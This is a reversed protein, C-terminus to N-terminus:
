TTPSATSRPSARVPPVVREADPRALQGGLDLRLQRLRGRRHLLQRQDPRRDGRQRVRRAGQGGRHRSQRRGASELDHVSPPDDPVGGSRAHRLAGALDPQVRRSRRRDGPRLDDRRRVPPELLVDAGADGGRRGPDGRRPPQHVRRDV